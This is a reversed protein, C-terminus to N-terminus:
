DHERSRGSPCGGHGVGLRQCGERFCARRKGNVQRDMGDLLRDPLKKGSIAGVAGNGDHEPRATRILLNYAARQFRNGPLHGPTAYVSARENDDARNEATTLEAVAGKVVRVIL